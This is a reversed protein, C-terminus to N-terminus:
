EGVEPNVQVLSGSVYRRIVGGSWEIEFDFRGNGTPFLATTAASVVMIKQSASAGPQLMGNTVTAELFASENPMACRVRWETASAIDVVGDVTIVQQYTAGRSFVINWKDTAM